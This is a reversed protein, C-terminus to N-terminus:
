KEIDFGKITAGASLQEGILPGCVILGGLRECEVFVTIPMSRDTFIPLVVIVSGSADSATKGEEERDWRVVIWRPPYSV